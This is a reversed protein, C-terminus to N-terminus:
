DVPTLTESKGYKTRTILGRQELTDFIMEADRSNLHYKTMITSRLIGPARIIAGFIAQVNREALPLGISAVVDMAFGRWMTVYSFAKMIDEEHVIVRDPMRSAAILIAAKLGSKALRDMLPTLLEAAADKVSTELLKREMENYLRWTSPTLEAKQINKTSL